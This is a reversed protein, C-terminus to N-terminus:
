VKATVSTGATLSAMIRTSNPVSFRSPPEVVNKGGAAERPLGDKDNATRYARGSTYDMWAGARSPVTDEEEKTPLPEWAGWTQDDDSEAATKNEQDPGTEAKQQRIWENWRPWAGRQQPQPNVTAQREDEQRYYNLEEATHEEVEPNEPIGTFAGLMGSTQPEERSIQLRWGPGSKPTPSNKPTPELKKPPRAKTKVKPLYDKRWFSDLSAAAGGEGGLRDTSSGAAGDASTAGSSAGQLPEKGGTANGDADGEERRHEVQYAVPLDALHPWLERSIGPYMPLLMAPEYVKHKKPEESM